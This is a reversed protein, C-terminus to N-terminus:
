ICAYPRSGLRFSFSLSLVPSLIDIPPRPLFLALSFFSTEITRLLSCTYVSGGRWRRRPPGKQGPLPTGGGIYRTVQALLVRPFFLFLSLFFLLFFFLLPPARLSPASYVCGRLGPIRAVFNRRGKTRTAGGSDAKSILGDFNNDVETRSSDVLHYVSSRTYVFRFSLSLSAFSVFIRRYILNSRFGAEETLTSFNRTLTVLLFGHSEHKRRKLPTSRSSHATKRARDFCLLSHIERKQVIAVFPDRSALKEYAFEALLSLPVFFPLFRRSYSPSRKREGRRFFTTTSRSANSLRTALFTERRYIYM